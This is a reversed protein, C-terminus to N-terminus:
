DSSACRQAHEIDFTTYQCAYRELLQFVVELPLNGAKVLEFGDLSDGTLMESPTM